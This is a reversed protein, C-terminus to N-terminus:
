GKIYVIDQFKAKPINTGKELEIGQFEINCELLKETLFGITQQNKKSRNEYTTAKIKLRRNEEKFKTNLDRTEFIEKNDSKITKLREAAISKWYEASKHSESLKDVEDSLAARIMKTDTELIDNKAHLSVVSDALLVNENTLRNIVEKNNKLKEYQNSLHKMLKKNQLM